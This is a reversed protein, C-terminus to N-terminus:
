ATGTIQAAALELKRKANIHLDDFTVDRGLLGSVYSAAFTNFYGAFNSYGPAYEKNLPAPNRGNAKDEKWARCVRELIVPSHVPYLENYSIKKATTKM